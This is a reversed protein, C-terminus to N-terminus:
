QAIGLDPRAAPRARRHAFLSTSGISYLADPAAASLGASRLDALSFALRLSVGPASLGARARAHRPRRRSSDGSPAPTGGVGPARAARGSRPAGRAPRHRVLDSRLDFRGGSRALRRRVVLKEPPSRGARLRGLLAREGGRLRDLGAPEGAAV